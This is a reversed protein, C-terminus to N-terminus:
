SESSAYFTTELSLHFLFSSLKLQALSRIAKRQKSERAVIIVFIAVGWCFANQTKCNSLQLDTTVTWRANRLCNLRPGGIGVVDTSPMILKCSGTTQTFAFSHSSWSHGLLINLSLLFKLYISIIDSVAPNTATTWLVPSRWHGGLDGSRMGHSKKRKPNQLPCLRRAEM